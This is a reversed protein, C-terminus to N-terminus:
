AYQRTGVAPIPYVHLRQQYRYAGLLVSTHGNAQRVVAEDAWVADPLPTTNPQIQADIHISAFAALVPNALPRIANLDVRHQQWYITGPAFHGISVPAATLNTLQIENDQIQILLQSVGFGFRDPTITDPAGPPVLAAAVVSGSSVLGVAGTIGALKLTNRKQIDVM